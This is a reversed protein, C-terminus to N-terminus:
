GRARPPLRSSLEGAITGIRYPKTHFIAGTCAITAALTPDQPSGDYALNGSLVVVPVADGGAQSRIAHLVPAATEGELRWDLVYADFGAGRLRELLPEIAHFVEVNWGRGRLVHAALEAAEEDDDLVAVRPIHLAVAAM